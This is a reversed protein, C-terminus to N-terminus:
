RWHNFWNALQFLIEPHIVKMLVYPTCKLLPICECIAVIKIGVDSLPPFHHEQIALGLFFFCFCFFFINHPTGEKLKELRSCFAGMKLFNSSTCLISWFLILCIPVSGRVNYCDFKLNIKKKVYFCFIVLSCGTKMQSITFMQWKTNLLRNSKKKKLRQCDVSVYRQYIISLWCPSLLMLLLVRTGAIVCATSCLHIVMMQTGQLCINLLRVITAM